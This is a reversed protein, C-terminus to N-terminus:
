ARLVRFSIGSPPRVEPRRRRALQKVGIGVASLRPPPAGGPRGGAHSGGPESGYLEWDITCSRADMKAFRALMGRIGGIEHHVPVLDIEEAAVNAIAGPATVRALYLARVLAALVTLAIYASSPWLRKSHAAPDPAV